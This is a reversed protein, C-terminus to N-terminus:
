SGPALARAADKFIRGWKFDSGLGLPAFNCCPKGCPDPCITVVVKIDDELEEGLAVNFAPAGENLVRKLLLDAEAKRGASELLGKLYGFDQLLRVRSRVESAEAGRGEGELWQSLRQWSELTLPHAEGYEARSRLPEAEVHRGLEELLAALDNAADATGPHGYGLAVECGCLAQRLFTEAEAYRHDAQLNVGLSSLCYLTRPHHMGFVSQLGALAERFLAEAEIFEGVGNLAVALNTMSELTDSHERGLARVRDTMARRHWEIAVSRYGAFWQLNAYRNLSHLTDPHLAGLTEELYRIRKRGIDVKSKFGVESFLKVEQSAVNAVWVKRLPRQTAGRDGGGSDPPLCEFACCRPVLVPICYGVEGKKEALMACTVEEPEEGWLLLGSLSTYEPNQQQEQLWQGYVDMDLLIANTFKAFTAKGIYHYLIRAPSSPAVARLDLAETSIRVGTGPHRL